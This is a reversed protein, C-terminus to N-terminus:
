RGFIISGNCKLHKYMNKFSQTGNTDLEFDYLALHSLHSVELAISFNLM